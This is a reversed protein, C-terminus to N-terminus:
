SAVREAVYEPGSVQRNAEVLESQARKAAAHAEVLRTVADRIALMVSDFEAFAETQHALTRAREERNM